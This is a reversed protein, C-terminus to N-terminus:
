KRRWEDLAREALEVAAAARVLPSRAGVRWKSLQELSARAYRPSDHITIYGDHDEHASPAFIGLLSHHFTRTKM